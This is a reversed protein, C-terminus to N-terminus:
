PNKARQMVSVVEGVPWKGGHESLKPSFGGHPIGNLEAARSGTRSGDREAPRLDANGLSERRVEIDVLLAVRQCMLKRM